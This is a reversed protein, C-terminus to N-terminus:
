RAPTGRPVSQGTTRKELVVLRTGLTQILPVTSKWSLLPTVDSADSGGARFLFVHGGPRVFAQLTQLVRSDTSVARLTLLDHAEHLHPQALLAEFRATIVSANSLGLVRIVERLFVSKRTKSEVMLLSAGRAGLMLPIAPSGGGSGVDIIRSGTAVQKAALLPEVLLRDISEATAQAVPLGTLNIKENWVVLLSYYAELQGILDGDVTTLDARKLRRRLRDRFNTAVM